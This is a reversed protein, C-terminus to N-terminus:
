SPRASGAIPIVFRVKGLDGPSDAPTAGNIFAKQKQYNASFEFFRM